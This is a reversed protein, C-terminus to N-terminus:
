LYTLSTRNNWIQTFTGTGAFRVSDVNGSADFVIKQIRWVPDAEVSEPDAEGLYLTSTTSADDILKTYVQSTPLTINLEEWQYDYNSGSKKVLIQNATGGTLNLSVNEFNSTSSNYVLVQNDQINVINVDGIDDLSAVTAVSTATTFSFNGSGDTTLVQGSTGDTIGLDTLTTPITPTNILDTYSGSTSVASFTPKGSINSWTLSATTIYGSNNILDGTSTPITPKNILDTYSGSTSVASFSPKGTLNNWTLSSSSIFGLDNTFESLNTPIAAVSITGNASVQINAGIRVGGLRVTTATQLVFTGTGGGGTIPIGGPTIGDSLRLEPTDEDYFIIGKDGVFDDVLTTIVRGSKIKQIPM